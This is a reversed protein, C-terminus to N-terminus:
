VHARGIKLVTRGTKCALDIARKTNEIRHTQDPWIYSLMRLRDDPNNPNLPKIDCGERDVVIIDAMPPLPGRWDPSLRVRANDPGWVQGDIEMGFMDWNLNLGTSAGLESMVLPLGTKKAILHFGPILANARRIENTQPPSEMWRIIHAPHTRMACEVAKWLTDADVLNPPYVASLGTDKELLVLSNIAGAFRLAVAGSRFNNYDPWEFLHAGVPTDNDLKLAVQRLLMGTFPSDLNECADAQAYFADALETM